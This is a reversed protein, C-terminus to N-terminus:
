THSASTCVHSAGEGAEDARAPVQGTCETIPVLFRLARQCQPPPAPPKKRPLFNFGLQQSRARGVGGGARPESRSLRRASRASSHRGAGVALRAAGGAAAPAAAPRGGPGQLTAGSM